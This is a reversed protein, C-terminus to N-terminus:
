QKNLKTTIYISLNIFIYLIFISIIWFSWNIGAILTILGMILILALFIFRQKNDHWKLTKFKFSFMSIESILLLSLIISMIPIILIYEIFLDAVFHYEGLFYILSGCLLACSPTALGIFNETQRVDINFKALRLGSFVAICLPIYSIIGGSINQMYSFLIMSPAVGFSVMDALSDLEKGMPSYAKLLRAAFGDFFDFIAAAIMLIFALQFNNEFACIISLCGCLLNLCTITNPIHKTINM